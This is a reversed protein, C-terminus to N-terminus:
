AVKVIKDLMVYWIFGEVQEYGMERLLKVYKGVQRDYKALELNGFKYDTVIVRDGTITVRDPRYTGGGAIIDQENFVRAGPAFWTGVGPTKLKELVLGQLKGADSENLLGERLFYKVAADVDEGTRIRGFLEHMLNGFDLHHDDGSHKQLFYDSSKLRLRIRENRFNVPYGSIKWPQEATGKEPMRKELEGIAFGKGTAAAALNM